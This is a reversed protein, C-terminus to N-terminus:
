DMACHFTSNEYGFRTCKLAIDRDKTQEEYEYSVTVRGHEQEMQLTRGNQKEVHTGRITRTKLEEKAATHKTNIRNASQGRNYKASTTHCILCARIAGAARYKIKGNEITTGTSPPGINDAYKRNIPPIEDTATPCSQKEEHHSLFSTSYTKTPSECKRLMRSLQPEPM